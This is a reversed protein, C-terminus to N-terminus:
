NSVKDKVCRVPLGVSKTSMSNSLIKSSSFSLHFGNNFSNGDASWYYGNSDVNILSGDRMERRGSAIFILGDTHTASTATWSWGTAGDWGTTTNNFLKAFDDKTPLRWTDKLYYRCPDGKGIAVDDTVPDGTWSSSWSTSGTYGVPSVAIVPNGTTSWGVLSGFQFYLGADTATGIKAGNAGDAVLNGAAWTITEEKTVTVECTATEGGDTTTVTITAEGKAVATVTGNDAVTAITNDSSEWTVTQDTANDPAITAILKETEGEKISTTEKNLTVGTVEIPAAVVTVKCTATKGGEVTTVTITAEGVKEATVVGSEGISAITADSTSWELETDANDPTIIVGFTATEGVELSLTTPDLSVGEVSATDSSDDNKSCGTAFIIAACLLLLSYLKKM